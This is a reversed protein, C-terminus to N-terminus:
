GHCRTSPRSRRRNGSREPVRLGGQHRRGRERRGGELHFIQRTARHAGPGNRLHTPRRELGGARHAVAASAVYACRPHRWTWIARDGIAHFTASTWVAFNAYHIRRWTRYSFETNRYHNSVALALLLEAAVIGLGTWVPRYPAVLPVILSVLSFPLYADIAVSVIHLVVFTGTLMGTFRHVDELAFRPWHKMSKKGTMLLGIAVNMSLLIYAAVGGARAAYWDIPNSTLHM